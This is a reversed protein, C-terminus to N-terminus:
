KKKRRESLLSLIHGETAIFIGHVFNDNKLPQHEWASLDDYVNLFWRILRKLHETHKTEYDTAYYLRAKRTPRGNEARAEKSNNRFYNTKIVDEDPALKRLLTDVFRRMSSTSQGIHDPGKTFFAKWCGKRFEVLEPDIDGLFSDLKEQLNVLEDKTISGSDRIIELSPLDIAHPFTPFSRVAESLGNTIMQFPAISEVSFKNFNEPVKIACLGDLALRQQEQITDLCLGSLKQTSLLTDKNIKGLEFLQTANNTILGIDAIAASAPVMMDSVISNIKIKGIETSFKTNLSEIQDFSSKQLGLVNNYDKHLEITPMAISLNKSLEDIVSISSKLSNPLNIDAFVKGADVGIRELFNSLVNKIDQAEEARKKSKKSKRIKRIKEKM